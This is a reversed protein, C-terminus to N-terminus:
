TKIKSSKYYKLYLYCFLTSFLFFRFSNRLPYQQNSIFFLYAPLCLTYGVFSNKAVAKNMLRMGFFLIVFYLCCYFLGFHYVEVNASYPEFISIRNQYKLYTDFQDISSPLPSFSLYKYPEPYNGNLKKALTFVWAGGFVNNAIFDIMIDSHALAGVVNRDIYAIGQTYPRNRGYLSTIYAIFVIILISSIKVTKLISRKEFVIIAMVLGCLILGSSRSNNGLQYVFCFLGILLLLNKHIISERGGYSKLFGYIFFSILGNIALARQYIILIPNTLGLKKVDVMALYENNSILVSIDISVLLLILFFFNIIAFIRLYKIVGSFNSFDIKSNAGEIIKSEKKKIKIMSFLSCIFLVAYFFETEETNVKVKEYSILYDCAYISIINVVLFHISPQTFSAYQKRFFILFIIIAICLILIFESM